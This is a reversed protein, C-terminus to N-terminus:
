AHHLAPRWRQPRSFRIEKHAWASRQRNKMQPLSSSCCKRFSIRGSGAQLPLPSPFEMFQQGPLVVIYRRADQYHTCPLLTVCMCPTAHTLACLTCICDWCKSEVRLIRSGWKSYAKQPCCFRVLDPKVSSGTNRQLSIFTQGGGQKAARKDERGSVLHAM